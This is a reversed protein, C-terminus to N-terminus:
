ALSGVRKGKYISGLSCAGDEIFFLNYKKAIEKILDIDCPLGVQDVGMIAKTNKNIKDTIKQTNINFTRPDIDVFIPKAGVQVVVNATAIFSFSPIIVEDGEKIGLIYLSLFLATTASSTAVAYKSSTYEKIKEELELVKPGQAVWGSRITEISAKEEAQNFSPKALYVKM